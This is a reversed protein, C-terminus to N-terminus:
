EVILKQSYNKGDILTNVFYIGAKFNALNVTLITGNAISQNDFSAVEQSMVNYIKVIGKSTKNVNFKLNVSNTAPNPFLNIAVSASPKDNVGVGCALDGAPIKYYNITAPGGQPDPTTATSVGHGTSADDQVIIHVTDNVDKAMAGYAGEIYDYTGSVIDPDTIDIQPCWTAGNDDSRMVYTHRYSKGPNASGAGPVPTGQENTGEFIGSYSVYLKGSADIGASPQSTLSVQYTGMGLLGGATNDFDVNLVGDAPHGVYDLDLVAAIMVPAAAGMSENWYMLGQTYPFYSLATGGAEELVKMKGYWVHAMGTNDLLVELSADNTELTDAVTDGNTDTIMTAGDYMPIPFQKIVTSTWTNGNDVSKALVV